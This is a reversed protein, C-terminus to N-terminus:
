IGNLVVMDGVKINRDESFGGNVELVYKAAELPTFIECVLRECPRVNYKIDVIRGEGSIFIMDLPILTDKMWFSHRGEREFIFLMGDDEGLYSRNMLGIKRKEFTDAIEVRVEVEEGNENVLVIEKRVEMNIIILLLIVILAFGVILKVKM